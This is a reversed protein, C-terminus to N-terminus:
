RGPQSPQSQWEAPNIYTTSAQPHPISAQRGRVQAREGDPQGEKEKKVEEAEISQDTQVSNM